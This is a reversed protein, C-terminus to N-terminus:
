NKTELAATCTKAAQDKPQKSMEDTTLDYAEKYERSARAEAVERESAGQVLVKKVEQYKAASQPNVQTCVDPAGEIKGFVDNSLPLEPLALQPLTVAAGLRCEGSFM